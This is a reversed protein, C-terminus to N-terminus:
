SEDKGNCLFNREGSLKHTLSYLNRLDRISESLFSKCAPDIGAESLDGFPGPIPRLEADRMQPAEWAMDAAPFYRTSFGQAGPGLSLAEELVAEAKGALRRNGFDAGVDSERRPAAARLDQGAKVKFGRM